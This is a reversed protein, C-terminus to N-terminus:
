NEKELCYQQLVARQGEKISKVREEKIKKRIEREELMKEVKAEHEIQRYRENIAQYLDDKILYEYTELNFYTDLLGYDIENSVSMLGIARDGVQGVIAKGDPDSDKTIRRTLNQTAILDAIFFEGFQSTLVESQKNFIHALDDHDEERAMRIEMPEVVHSKPSYYLKSQHNVGILGKLIQRDKEKFELFHSNLINSAWEIDYIDEIEGRLLFLM